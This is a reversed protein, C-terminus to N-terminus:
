KKRPPLPPHRSASVERMCVCEWERETIGYMAAAKIVVWAGRNVALLLLHPSHDPGREAEATDQRMYQLYERPGEDIVMGCISESYGCTSMPLNHWDPVSVLAVDRSIDISLVAMWRKGSAPQGPM